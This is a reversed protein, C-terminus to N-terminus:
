PNLNLTYHFGTYISIINIYWDVLIQKTSKYYVLRGVFVCTTFLAVRLVMFWWFTAKVCALTLVYDDNMIM